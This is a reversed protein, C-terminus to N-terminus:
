ASCAAQEGGSAQTLMQAIESACPKCRKGAGCGMAIAKVTAAGESILKQITSDTVGSCQCLIMTEIWGRVPQLAVAANFNFSIRL